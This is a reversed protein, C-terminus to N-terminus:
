KGFAPSISLLWSIVFYLSDAAENERFLIQGGGPIFMRKLGAGFAYLPPEEFAM